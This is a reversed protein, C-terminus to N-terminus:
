RHSISASQSTYLDISSFSGSLSYESLSDGWYWANNFRTVFSLINYSSANRMYVKFLLQFYRMIGRSMKGQSSCFRMMGTYGAKNQSSWAKGDKDVPHVSRIVAHQLSLVPTIIQTTSWAPQSLTAAVLTGPSEYLFVLIISSDKKM